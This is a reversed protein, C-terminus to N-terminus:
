APVVCGGFTHGIADGVQVKLMGGAGYPLRIDEIVTGTGKPYVYQVDGGLEVSLWGNNVFRVKDGPNYIHQKM